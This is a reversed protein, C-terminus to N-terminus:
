DGWEKECFSRSIGLFSMRHEEVLSPDPLFTQKGSERKGYIILYHTQGLTQIRFFGANKANTM